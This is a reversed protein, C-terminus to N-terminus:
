FELVVQEWEVVPQTDTPEGTDLNIAPPFFIVFELNDELPRDLVIVTDGNIEEVYIDEIVYVAGAMVPPMVTPDVVDADVLVTGVRLYPDLDGPIAFERQGVGAFAVGVNGPTLDVQWPVPFLRAFDFDFAPIVGLIWENNSPDADQQVYAVNAQMNRRLSFFTMRYRHMGGPPGVNLCQYLAAWARSRQTSVEFVAQEWLAPAWNYANSPDDRLCWRVVDPSDSGVEPTVYVGVASPLLYEGASGYLGGMDVSIFPWLNPYFLPAFPSSGGALGLANEPDDLVMRAELNLNNDILVNPKILNHVAGPGSYNVGVLDANDQIFQDSSLVAERFAPGGAWNNRLRELTIEAMVRSNHTALSGTVSDTVDRSAWIGVPFQAAVFVLGIALIAVAFIVEMLSFGPQGHHRTRM